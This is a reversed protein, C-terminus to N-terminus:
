THLILISKSFYYFIDCRANAVEGTKKVYNTSMQDIGTAPPPIILRAGRMLLDNQIPFGRDALIVDGMELLDLFGCHRTVYLDSTRGGWAPPLFSVMGNPAIAVFIKVTNHHKYDSYTLAQLLLNRPREIFVETCDITCRLHRYQGRPLSKPFDRFIKEKTPWYILPKLEYAMLKIWTNFVSSVVSVAIGFTVSLMAHSINQKIKLLVLLLEEKLTLKRKPGCKKPTVKFKRRLPVMKKAGVWYRMISAKRQLHNLLDNFAQRSRLGTFTKVKKDTSLFHLTKDVKKPTIAPLSLEDPNLEKYKNILEPLTLNQNNHCETCTSENKFYNHFNQVIEKQYKKCQQTNKCLSEEIKRRKPTSGLALRSAPRKRSKPTVTYEPRIGLNISPYPNDSTPKGEVFHESCIRSNSNAM